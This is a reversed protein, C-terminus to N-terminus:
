VMASNRGSPAFPPAFASGTVTTPGRGPTSHPSVRWRVPSHVRWEWCPACNLIAENVLSSGALTYPMRLYRPLPSTGPIPRTYAFLITSAKPVSVNRTRLSSDAFSRPTAPIPRLRAAAIM